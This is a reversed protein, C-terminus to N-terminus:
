SHKKKKLEERFRLRVPYITQFNNAQRQMWGKMVIQERLDEATLLGSLRCAHVGYFSLNSTKIFRAVTKSLTIIKDKYEYSSYMYLLVCLQNTPQTLAKRGNDVASTMDPRDTIRDM